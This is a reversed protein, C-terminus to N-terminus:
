QVSLVQLIPPPPPQPSLGGFEYAGVDYAAGSPRPAGDFDVLVEAVATGSNIAPSGSILRFDQASVDVLNPNTTLNNSLVIGSTGQNSVNVGNGFSINNKVTVNIGEIQIGMSGNNYVTNNYAANGSRMALGSAFPNSGTQYLLNNYVLNGTGSSCYIGSDPGSQAYNYIRNGRIIGNDPKNVGESYLQLGNGGITHITNGEILINDGAAYIAHSFSSGIGIDHMLCNRITNRDGLIFFGEFGSRTNKLEIDFFTIYNNGEDTWVNNSNAAAGNIVFGEVSIHYNRAARFDLIPGSGPAITAGRRNTSKLTFVNGNTGSPFSTIRETYTGNAVSVTHGSGSGAGFGVCALAAGITAKPTSSSQAQACSNGDSGTTAVFWTTAKAQACWLMMLALLGCVKSVIFRNM